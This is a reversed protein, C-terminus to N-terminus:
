TLMRPGINHGMIIRPIMAAPTITLQVAGSDAGTNPNVLYIAASAPCTIQDEFQIGASLGNDRDVSAVTTSTYVGEVSTEIWVAEGPAAGFDKDIGNFGGHFYFPDDVMASTTADVANSIWTAPEANGVAPSATVLSIDRNALDVFMNASTDGVVNSDAVDFISKDISVKAQALTYTSAAASGSNGFFISSQNASVGIVCGRMKNNGGIPNANVGLFRIERQGYESSTSQYVGQRNNFAYINNLLDVNSFRTSGAGANGRSKMIAGPAFGNVITNHAIKVHEIRRENAGTSWDSVVGPGAGNDRSASSAGSDFFKSHLIAVRHTWVRAPDSVAEREGGVSTLTCSDILNNTCSLGGDGYSVSLAECSTIVCDTAGEKFNVPHEPGNFTNGRLLIRKPGNTYNGDAGFLVNTHSSPGISCGVIYVDQAGSGIGSIIDKQVGSAMVSDM